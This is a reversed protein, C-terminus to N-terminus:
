GPLTVRMIKWYKVAIRWCSLFKFNRWFGEGVLEILVEPLVDGLMHVFCACFVVFVLREIRLHILHEVSSEINLAESSHWNL